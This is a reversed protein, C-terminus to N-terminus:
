WLILAKITLVTQFSSKQPMMQCFKLCYYFFKDVLIKLNRLLRLVEWFIQITPLFFTFVTLLFYSINSFVLRM